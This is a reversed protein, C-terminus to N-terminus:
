GELVYFNAFKLGFDRIASLLAFRNTKLNADPSNVTIKEFFIDIPKSLELLGKFGDVYTTSDKVRLFVTYLDKEADEAFDSPNISKLDESTKLINAARLFASKLAKGSDTDLMGHLTEIKHRLINLDGNEVDGHNLCASIVDHPFEDKLLVRFRELIFAYVDSVDTGQYLSLAKELSSKLNLTLKNELILRIIGLASRRLAYPDKSGTPRENAHFFGVLTDIKDALAVIVSLPANPCDDNPGQPKYHNELSQALNLDLKENLAYYKGAIGQLEPFENVLGTSLDAKLLHAAKQVLNGDLKYLQDNLFLALTELRKVKDYVTGLKQHFVRDKLPELHQELSKKQDTEFFFLGDSLRARLVRENGSIIAQGGDTPTINAAFLFFPALKGDKNEAMMYRQHKKCVAILLEKPLSMFKEDIQGKLVHPWEVLGTIEEILGADEILSYGIGELLKHAQDLIIKTRKASDLIVHNSLLKSKYDDFSSPVFNGGMFRHGKTSPSFPVELGEIDLSQGGFYAMFQNIPRIWTIKKDGWRMSKPWSFNSLLNKILDKLIESTEQGKKNIKAIYYTGKDTEQQELSHELGKLGDFFGKQAQEPADVRPGKKEIVQDSQSLPLNAISLVLRRPTVFSEISNYSLDAETLGKKFFEALDEAAKKQMRAPIEENLIEFLFEAM